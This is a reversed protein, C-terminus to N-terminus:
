TRCSYGTPSWRRQWQLQARLQTNENQLVSNVRAQELFDKLADVALETARDPNSELLRKLAEVYLQSTLSQSSNM